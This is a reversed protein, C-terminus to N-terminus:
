IVQCIDFVVGDDNAGRGGQASDAGEDCERSPGDKSRDHTRDEHNKLYRRQDSPPRHRPSRHVAAHTTKHASHRPGDRLLGAGDCSRVVGDQAQQIARQGKMQDKTNNFDTDDEDDDDDPGDDESIEMDSPVKPPTPTTTISSSAPSSSSDDGSSSRAPPPAPFIRGNTKDLSDNSEKRRRRRQRSPPPSATAGEESGSYAESDTCPEKRGHAEASDSKAQPSRQEVDGGTKGEGVGGSQAEKEPLEAFRDASKLPVELHDWGAAVRRRAGGASRGAGVSSRGARGAVKGVRLEGPAAEEGDLEVDGAPSPPVAPEPPTHPVAEPAVADAPAAVAAPDLGVKSPSCTRSVNRAAKPSSPGGPSPSLWGSATPRSTKEGVWSEDRARRRSEGAGRDQRPSPTTPPSSVAAATSGGEGGERAGDTSRSSDDSDRRRRKARIGADDQLPRRKVGNERTASGVRHEKKDKDKQTPSEVSTAAAADAPAAAPPDAFAPLPAAASAAAMTASFPSGRLEALMGDINQEVLANGTKGRCRRPHASVFVPTSPPPHFLTFTFCPSNIFRGKRQKTLDFALM